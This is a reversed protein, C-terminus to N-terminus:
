IVEQIRHSIEFAGYALGDIALLFVINGATTASENLDIFEQRLPATNRVMALSPGLLATRVKGRLIVKTALGQIPAQNWQTYAIPTVGNAELQKGLSELAKHHNTPNEHIKTLYERLGVILTLTITQLASEEILSDESTDFPDHIYLAREVEFVEEFVPLQPAAEEFSSKRFISFIKKFM